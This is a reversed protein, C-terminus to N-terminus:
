HLVAYTVLSLLAYEVTLTVRFPVNAQFFLRLSILICILAISLLLKGEKYLLYVTLLVMVGVFISHLELLTKNNRLTILTLLGAVAILVKLMNSPEYILIWVQALLIALSLFVWVGDNIISEESLTSKKNDIMSLVYSAALCIQVIVYFLHM